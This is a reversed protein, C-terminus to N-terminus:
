ASRGIAERHPEFTGRGETSSTIAERRRLFIFLPATLAAPLLKHMLLMLGLVPKLNFHYSPEPVARYTYNEFDIAPFYRAVDRLTNLKFATPFTDQNSRDPQAGRLVFPHLRNPVALTPISTYAYKSPTRACIWGGPKILRAFEDAVRQPDEVHELAYDSVILDVSHDPLPVAGGHGILLQEDVSRNRLVAPDIDCAIVRDVKGKLTRLQKRYECDDEEFWCARGAGYDLVTMSPRLLANVQNYFRITGDISTMGSVRVEPYFTALTDLRSSM